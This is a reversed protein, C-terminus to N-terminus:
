SSMASNQANPELRFYKTTIHPILFCSSRVTRYMEHLKYWTVIKLSTAWHGEGHPATHQVNFKQLNKLMKHLKYCNRLSNSWFGRVYLHPFLFNTYNKVNGQIEEMFQKKIRLWFTKQFLDQWRM